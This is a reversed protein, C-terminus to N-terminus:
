YYNNNNGIVNLITANLAIPQIIMKSNKKKLQKLM